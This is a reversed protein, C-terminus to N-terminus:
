KEDGRSKQGAKGNFLKKKGKNALHDLLDVQFRDVEDDSGQPAHGKEPASEGAQGAGDGDHGQFRVSRFEQAM